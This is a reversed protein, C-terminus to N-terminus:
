LSFPVPRDPEDVPPPPPPPPPPVPFERLEAPHCTAPIAASVKYLAEVDLNYLSMGMHGHAGPGTATGLWEVYFRRGHRWTDEAAPISKDLAAGIGVPVNTWYFGVDDYYAAEAPMGECPLFTSNEFGSHYIGAFRRRETHVAPEICASADVEITADARGDRVFFPAEGIKKTRVYPIRSPCRVVIKEGPRPLPRRGEYRGSADTKGRGVGVGVVPRGTRRDQVLVSLLLATREREWADDVDPQGAGAARAAADAAQAAADAASEAARIAAETTYERREQAVVASQARTAPEAPSTDPTGAETRATAEAHRREGAPGCGAVCAILLLCALLPALRM